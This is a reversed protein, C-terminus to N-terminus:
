VPRQFFNVIGTNYLHAECRRRRTLGPLEKLKGNVTANDWQLFKAIMAESDDKYSNVRTLLSSSKLSPTGINYALSVLADFQHQKIDDRTCDDVAKAFVAINRQLLVLANARDTKDGQQVRRGDPYRTTGWGITWVGAPCKYATLYLSEFHQIIELGKDSIKTIRM